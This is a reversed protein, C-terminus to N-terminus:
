RGERLCWGFLRRIRVGSILTKPIHASVRECPHERLHHLARRRRQLRYGVLLLIVVPSLWVAPPSPPRSASVRSVLPPSRPRESVNTVRYRGKETVWELEDKVPIGAATNTPLESALSSAVSKLTM